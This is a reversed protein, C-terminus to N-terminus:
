IRGEEKKARTKNKIYIYNKGNLFCHLLLGIATMSYPVIRIEKPLYFFGAATLILFVAGIGLLIDAAAGEPTAAIRLLGIRSQRYQRACSGSDNRVRMRVRKDTRISLFVSLAILGWLLTSALYGSTRSGLRPDYNVHPALLLSAGTAALCIATLLSLWRERRMNERGVPKEGKERPKDRRIVPPQPAKQKEHTGM